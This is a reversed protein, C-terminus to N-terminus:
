DTVALWELLLSERPPWPEGLVDGDHAPPELRWWFSGASPRGQRLGALTGDAAPRGAAAPSTWAATAWRAAGIDLERPSSGPAADRLWSAIQAARGRLAALDIRELAPEAYAEAFLLPFVRGVRDSSATVVGSWAPQGATSPLVLCQWPSMALLRERLLAAEVQRSADALARQLWDDWLRLWPRPLGRGVFDGRSPLKGWWGVAQPLLTEIGADM